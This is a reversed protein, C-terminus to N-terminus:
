GFTSSNRAAPWIGSLMNWPRIGVGLLYWRISNFSIEPARRAIYSLWSTLGTLFSSSLLELLCVLWIVFNVSGMSKTGPPFLGIVLDPSTLQSRSQPKVWKIHLTNYPYKSFIWLSKFTSNAWWGLWPTKGSSSASCQSPGEQAEILEYGRHDEFRYSKGASMHWLNSPCEQERLRQQNAQLSPIWRSTEWSWILEHLDFLNAKFM